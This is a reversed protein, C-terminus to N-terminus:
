PCESPAPEGRLRADLWGIMATYGALAATVHEGPETRYVAPVGRACQQRYLEQAGELPIWIDHAGHYIYLPAGSKRDRLDSQRLVEDAARSYLPGATNTAVELPIGVVGLPGNSDGCTDKVPSSAVWQALHNMNALLQPHERAMALSVVLLIGSAVNGDFKRAVARYDTVLGGTAAGALVGHLEPAYEGLLMASAYSAIAGGSYGAVAFRSEAFEAPSVSRVARIADLVVRGAVTPEAYSMWPGEHDPILVAYGRSLGWGTTPPFLDGANFKDHLGHAMAYSPTCRLGLANIPLANVAVPRGGPGAWAAAPILLTATGFSPVGAAATTRFKLLLARRIPVVALPAATATVDRWEVLDGPSLGDLTSPWADFLPDGAPASLVARWLAALDPPLDATPPSPAAPFVPAPVSEDIRRQLESPAPGNPLPTVGPTEDDARAAQQAFLLCGALVVVVVARLSKM